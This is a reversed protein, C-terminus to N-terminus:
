TKFCFKVNLFYFKLAAFGVTICHGSLFLFSSYGLMQINLSPQLYDRLTLM